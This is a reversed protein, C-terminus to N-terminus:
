GTAKRERETEAAARELADLAKAHLDDTNSAHVAKLAGSEVIDSLADWLGNFAHRLGDDEDRTPIVPVAPDDLLDRQILTAAKTLAARELSLGYAEEALAESPEEDDDIATIRQQRRVAMQGVISLALVPAAEILAGAAANAQQEADTVHRETVGQLVGVIRLCRDNRDRVEVYTWREGIAVAVVLAGAAYVKHTRKEGRKTPAPRSPLIDVRPGEKLGEM